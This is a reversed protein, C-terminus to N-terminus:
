VCDKDYDPLITPANIIPCYRFSRNEVKGARASILDREKAQTCVSSCAIFTHITDFITFTHRYDTVIRICSLNCVMAVSHKAM